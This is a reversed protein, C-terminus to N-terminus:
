AAELERRLTAPSKRKDPRKGFTKEYLRELGNDVITALAQEDAPVPLVSPPMVAPTLLAGVQVRKWGNKEDQVAELESIAVKRGHKAHELYIVM